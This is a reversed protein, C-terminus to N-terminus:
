KRVVYQWGKTKKDPFRSLVRRRTLNLLNMAVNPQSYFRGMEKLKNMVASINKPKDFFREETILISLAGAAGKKTPSLKTKQIRQGSSKPGASIAVLQDVLGKIKDAIKQVDKKAM